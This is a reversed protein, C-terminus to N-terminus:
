FLSRAGEIKRVLRCPPNQAPRPYQDLPHPRASMILHNSSYIYTNRVPHHLSSCKWAKMCAKMQRRTEHATIFCSVVAAIASLWLSAQRRDGALPMWTQLKTRRTRWLFGCWDWARSLSTVSATATNRTQISLPRQWDRWVTNQKLIGTQRGAMQSQVCFLLYHVSQFKFKHLGESSQCWVSTQQQNARILTWNKKIMM